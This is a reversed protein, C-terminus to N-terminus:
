EADEVVSLKKFVMDIADKYAVKKGDILLLQQLGLPKGDKKIWKLTKTVEDIEVTYEPEKEELASTLSSPKSPPLPPPPSTYTAQAVPIMPIEETEMGKIIEELMERACNVKALAVKIDETDRLLLISSIAKLMNTVM